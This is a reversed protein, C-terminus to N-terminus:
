RVVGVFYLLTTSGPKLKEVGTIRWRVEEDLVEDFGEIDSDAVAILIQESRKVFDEDTTKRGLAVLSSPPVAVASGSVTEAAPARALTAGRWPEDLDTPIEDLRVFSMARGNAEVLRTATAALRVYDVM